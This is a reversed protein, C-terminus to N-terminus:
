LKLARVVALYAEDREQTATVDRGDSYDYFGRGAKVGFAGAEYKETLLRSPESDNCLDANLYSAIHHFTDLGGFDAIALPGLCAYRVGLGYRMVDDVGQEDVVGEEVLHLAERLVAFQLRNAVFGPVDRAVVVPKKGIRLAVDRVAEACGDSTADARVIEILPIINSPNFWHMGIFREPETVASALANISLGSTNSALIADPRALESVERYFAQKIELKEVISEVMLDCNAFCSKDCTYELRALLSDGEERSIEGDDVLNDTGQAIRVRANELAAEALDYVVAEYGYRAFIQAMSYGMTGAGAVVIRKIDAAEM